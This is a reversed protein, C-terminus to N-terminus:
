QNNITLTQDIGSLKIRNKASQVSECNCYEAVNKQSFFYLQRTKKYYIAQKM